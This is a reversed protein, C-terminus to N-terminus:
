AAQLLGTLERAILTVKERLTPEQQHPDHLVALTVAGQLSFTIVHQDNKLSITETDDIGTMAVLPEVHDIMKQAQRLFNTAESSGNGSSAVAKGEHFCVAAAVGPQATTLRIVDEADFAEEQSGLLVRLLMQRRKDADTSVRPAPRVVSVPVTPRSLGSPVSPAEPKPLPAAPSAFAQFPQEM